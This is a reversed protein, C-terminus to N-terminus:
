FPLHRALRRAARSFARGLVSVVRGLASVVPDAKAEVEAAAARGARTARDSEFSGDPLRGIHHGGHTASLAEFDIREIMETVHELEHALLEAFDPSAPPLEVDVILLATGYRRATSRARVQHERHDIVIAITVDTGAAGAIVACQARLTPSRALLQAVPARLEAAAHINAPLEYCATVRGTLAIPNLGLGVLLLVLISPSSPIV